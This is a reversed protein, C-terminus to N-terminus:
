KYIIYTLVASDNSADESATSVTASDKVTTNEDSVYQISGNVVFTANERIILVKLSDDSMLTEEDVVDGKKGDKVSVFTTSFDYGAEKASAITGSYAEYGSFDSYADVSDYTTKVYVIGKKEKVKDLKVLTEKAQANFEKIVEKAYSKIDSKSLDKETSIEEFVVSNETLTLTNETVISGLLSKVLFTILLVVAVVAVALGGFFMARRRRIMKRRQKQKQQMAKKRRQNNSESM